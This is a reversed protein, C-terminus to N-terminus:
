QRTAFCDSIVNKLTDADATTFLTGPYNKSGWQPHLLIHCCGANQVDYKLLQQAGQVDPYMSPGRSSFVPFGSAPDTIDAWHGYQRLKECISTGWEMFDREKDVLPGIGVLDHECKQFTPVVLCRDLNAVKPFVAELERLFRSSCAHISYEITVLQCTRPTLYTLVTPTQIEVSRIKTPRSSRLKNKSTPSM